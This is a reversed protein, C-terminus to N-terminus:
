PVNTFSLDVEYYAGNHFLEDNTTFNIFFTYSTNANLRYPPPTVFTKVVPGMACQLGGGAAQARAVQVGDLKFEIKEYDPAQLEGIGEFDLGMDVDSAGVTITATATGSQLDSCSGGCNSSNEIHYKIKSNNNSIEWPTSSCPNNVTTAWSLGTIPLAITQFTKTQGYGTGVGNTAYARVYYTTTETLGTLNSVFNATGSGDNTSGEITAFSPSTSWEVGKATIPNGNDSINEGGSTAVDWSIGSVAITSITPAASSQFSEVQGYAIGVENQAYARVYYTNGSALKTIISSFSATGTGENNAGLITNFDAFESWQIGKSSISGGGDTISEGGSTATQGSINSVSTTVITPLVVTSLINDLNLTHTIPTAGSSSVEITGSVTFVDNSSNLASTLNNLVYNYAPSAPDPIAPAFSNATVPAIVVLEPGSSTAEFSFNLTPLSGPGYDINANLNLTDPIGSISLNSDTSTATVEIFVLEQQAIDIVVDPGVNAIAPNIDGTIIIKYPSEGDSVPPFVIDPSSYQGNSPMVENTAIVIETGTGDQYFLSASFTANPDGFLNLVRTDGGSPIPPQKISGVSSVNFANIYTTSGVSPIAFAQINIIDGLVNNAPFTYSIEYTVAVLEDYTNRTETTVIDYDSPNGTNIAALPAQYFYFGSDAQITKNWVVKSETFNGVDSYSYQASDSDTNQEAINVVGEISYPASRAFGLLCIPVDIDNGPMISGPNFSLDLHILNGAQQFVASSPDIISPIPDTLGFDSALVQYGEDPTIVLRKIGSEGLDTNQTENFNVESVTFNNYAM